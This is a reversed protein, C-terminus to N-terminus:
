PCCGTEGATARDDRLDPVALALLLLGAGGLFELMGLASQDEAAFLGLIGSLAFLVTRM